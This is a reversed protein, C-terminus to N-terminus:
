KDELHERLQSYVVLGNFNQLLLKFSLETERANLLCADALARILNRTNAHLSGSSLIPICQFSEQAIMGTAVYTEMKRHIVDRILQSSKKNIHSPTMEHVVTLDYFIAGTDWYIVLDPGSRHLHRGTCIKSHTPQSERSVVNRCTTCTWNSFARPESECPIGARMCLDHLFKVLMNHKVSANIGSCQACPVVGADKAPIVIRRPFVLLCALLTLHIM